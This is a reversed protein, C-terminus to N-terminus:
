RVEQKIHFSLPLFSRGQMKQVRGWHIEVVSLASLFLIHVLLDTLFSLSASSLCSFLPFASTWTRRGLRLVPLPDARHHLSKPPCRGLWRRPVSHPDSPSHSPPLQSAGANHLPQTRSTEESEIVIQQEEGLTYRQDALVKHKRAQCQMCDQHAFVLPGTLKHSCLSPVSVVGHRRQPPPLSVLRTAQFDARSDQISEM